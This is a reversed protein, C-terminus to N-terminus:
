TLATWGHGSETVISVAATRYLVTDQLLMEQMSFSGCVIPTYFVMIYNPDASLSFYACELMM